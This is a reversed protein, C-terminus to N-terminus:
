SNNINIPINNSSNSINHVLFSDIPVLSRKNCCEHIWEYSVICGQPSLDNFLTKWRKKNKSDVIIHTSKTPDLTVDGCYLKIYMEMLKLISSDDESMADGIKQFRDFYVIIGRFFTSGIKISYKKNFKEILEINVFLDVSIDKVSDPTADITFADGYQDICQKFYAQTTNSTYIMYSRHLSALQGERICDIIYKYHVIDKDFPSNGSECAKIWNDVRLERKSAVIFSTERTPNQVCIGGNEHIMTELTQKSYLKTNANIVHIKLGKFINSRILINSTDIGQFQSLVKLSRDKVENNIRRKKRSQQDTTFNIDSQKRKGFINLGGNMLSQKLEKFENVTCAENWNKDQRICKVRPFRLTAEMKFKTSAIISNAKIELVKSFQPLIYVDPIEGPGPKWNGFLKRTESCDKYEKWYPQLAHQLQLLEQNTYGSGVKALTYYTEENAILALLFHSISHRQFKTGWYGGIILLDLTECMSDIHDPKLKMWLDSREGPNYISEINKIMIGEERNLVAAKLAELAQNTSTLPNQPVIVISNEVPNICKELYKRREKLTRQSIDVGNYVVIDFVCFCFQEKTVDDSLSFTRNNRFEKFAGLENNWIMMEGDLICSHSKVHEIIIQNFKKSYISTYDKSNRTYYTINFNKQLAESDNNNISNTIIREIHIIIREGDYKPEYVLSNSSIQKSLKSESPVVTALMPKICKNTQISLSSFIFKPDNCKDCVEKLNTCTNYLDLAHPHFTKLIKQFSQKMKMEKTIIRVLWKIELPTLTTGITRWLQIHKSSEKGAAQMSDLLENVSNISISGKKNYISIKEAINSVNLSFDFNSSSKIENRWKQLRETYSPPLNWASKIINILKQEKVGYFRTDLEPILLRFVDFTRFLQYKKWYYTLLGVGKDSLNEFIISCLSKFSFSDITPQKNDM